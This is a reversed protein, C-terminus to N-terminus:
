PSSKVTVLRNYIVLSVATVGALAAFLIWMLDPRNIGQPGFNQYALGSLLGGFLNGLALCWYFYGM